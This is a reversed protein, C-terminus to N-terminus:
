LLLAVALGMVIGASTLWGPSGWILSPLTM